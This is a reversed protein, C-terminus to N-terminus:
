GEVRPAHAEILDVLRDVAGREKVIVETAGLSRAQRHENPNASTTFVAIPAGPLLAEERLAELVRLGPVRPLNLDLVLFAPPILERRRAARLAEDGDVYHRVSYPLGRRALARRIAAADLADDEILVVMLDVM